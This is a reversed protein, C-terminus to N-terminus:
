PRNENTKPTETTKTKTENRAERDVDRRYRRTACGDRRSPADEDNTRSRSSSRGNDNAIRRSVASAFTRRPAFTRSPFRRRANSPCGRRNSRACLRTSSDFLTSTEARSITRAAHGFVATGTEAVRTEGPDAVTGAFGVLGTRTGEERILADALRVSRARILVALRGPPPSHRPSVSARTSAFTAGALPRARLVPELIRAGRSMAERAAGLSTPDRAFPDVDVGADTEFPDVDFADMQTRRLEQGRRSRETRRRRRRRRARRSPSRVRRASPPTPPERRRDFALAGANQLTAALAVSRAPTRSRFGDVTSSKPLLM